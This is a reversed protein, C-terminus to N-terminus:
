WWEPEDSVHLGLEGTVDEPDFAAPVTKAGIAFAVRRIHKCLRDRYRHDACECAWPRSNVLYERGSQSVVLYLDDCGRVRGQNELVTLYETLARHDVDDASVDQTAAM